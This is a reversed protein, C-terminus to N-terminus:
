LPSFKKHSLYLSTNEYLYDSIRKCQKNGGYRLESVEESKTKRIKVNNLSLKNEIFNKIELLLSENSMFIVSLQPTPMHKNKIFFSGDGDYLGRIFDRELKNDVVDKPICKRSNSKYESMGHKRLDNNIKTNSFQLKLFTNTTEFGTKPIIEKIDNTCGINDLLTQMVEKTNDVNKLSLIVEDNIGVYGDAFLLGLFYAKDSTDIVEFYGENAIIYRNKLRTNINNEKLVRSFSRESVGCICAMEKFNKDKNDKDFYTNIILEFDSENLKNYPKM